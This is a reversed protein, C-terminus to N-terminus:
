YKNNVDCLLRKGSVTIRQPKAISRKKILANKMDIQLYNKEAKFESTTFKQTKDL